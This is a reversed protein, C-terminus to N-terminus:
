APSDGTQNDETPTPASQKVKAKSWYASVSFDNLSKTVYWDDTYKVATLATELTDCETPHYGGDSYVWLIYEKTPTKM